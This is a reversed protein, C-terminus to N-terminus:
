KVPNITLFIQKGSAKPQGNVKGHKGINDIIKKMLDNGLEPQQMQRGKFKVVIKVPHQKELFENIHRMKVDFDNQGINIGFQVEKLGHDATHKKAKNEQYIYKKYDLIKCYAIGDKVSMEVLDMGQSEAEVMAERLSFSTHPIDIVRIEKATIQRNIRKNM